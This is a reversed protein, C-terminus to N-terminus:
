ATYSIWGPQPRRLARDTAWTGLTTLTASQTEDPGDLRVAGFQALVGLVRRVDRDNCRRWTDQHAEPASKEPLRRQDAAM